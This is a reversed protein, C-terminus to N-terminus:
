GPCHSINAPVSCVGPLSMARTADIKFGLQPNDRDKILICLCKPSKGIVQKLGTCCDPTPSKSTGEVYTLCTSLGVLAEACEAQDSAFDGRAVGAGLLLVMAVMILPAVVVMVPAAAPSMRSRGM